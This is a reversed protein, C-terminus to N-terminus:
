YPITAFTNVGSLDVFLVHDPPLFTFLVLMGCLVLAALTICGGVGPRDTVAHLLGPLLFGAAMWLVYLIADVLLADGGMLIRYIYGCGLMGACLILATLLWPARSGAEGGRTLVLTGLLYPWFLIKLHEWLSENTPAILATVPNPFITYGFRLFAGLLTVIVFTVLMKKSLGHM